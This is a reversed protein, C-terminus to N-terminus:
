KKRRLAYILVVIIVIIIIIVALILGSSDSDVDDSDGSDPVDDTIDPAITGPNGPVNHIYDIYTYNGKEMWSFADVALYDLNGDQLYKSKPLNLRLLEENKQKIVGGLPTIDESSIEEDNVIKVLEFTGNRFTINYGTKNDPETFVRFVYEVDIASMIQKQKTGLIFTLNDGTGNKTEFRKLDLYPFGEVLTINGNEDFRSVDGAPEGNYDFEWTLGQALSSFLFVFTIIVISLRSFTVM